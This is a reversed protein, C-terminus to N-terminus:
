RAMAKMYEVNRGKYFDDLEPRSFDLYNNSLDEWERVKMFFYRLCAIPCEWTKDLSDDANSSGDRNQKIGFDRMARRANQCTKFIYLRPSNTSSLPMDRNFFIAEKIKDFGVSVDDSVNIDFLRKTDAQFERQLTTCSRPQKTKFINPDGIWFNPKTRFYPFNGNKGQEIIDWERGHHGITLKTGRITDWPDTPYEAVVYCRGIPDVAIWFCFPPKVLHPDCIHYVNFTSDIKFPEIIHVREDFCKFVSGALHQFKGYVRAEMEDPDTIYSIDREIEIRSKHGRTGPIDKCADWKSVYAYSLEEESQTDIVKLLYAAMNLPTLFMFAYGSGRLRAMNEKYVQEPPPENFLIVDENSGSQKITEQDFTKFECDVEGIKVTKYFGGEKNKFTAKPIWRKIEEFVSGGEQMENSGGVIRVHLRRAKRIESIKHFFLWNCYTRNVFEPGLCIGPLVTSAMLMTKGSGNGGLVMIVHPFDGTSERPKALCMLAKEQGVNIVASMSPYYEKATSVHERIAGRYAAPDAIFKERLGPPLLLLLDKYKEQQYLTLPM